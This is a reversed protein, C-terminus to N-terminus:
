VVAVVIMPHVQSQVVVAFAPQTGAALVSQQIRLERLM